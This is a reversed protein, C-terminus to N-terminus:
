DVRLGLSRLGAILKAAEDANLTKSVTFNFDLMKPGSASPRIASSYQGIGQQAKFDDAVPKNGNEVSRRAASALSRECCARLLAAIEPYNFTGDKRQPFSKTEYICSVSIRLKGTPVSRWGSTTREEKITLYNADAGCVTLQLPDGQLAFDKGGAAVIARLHPLEVKARAAQEKRCQEEFRAQRAKRADEEKMATFVEKSANEEEISLLNTTIIPFANM